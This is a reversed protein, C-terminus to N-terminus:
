LLEAVNLHSAVNSFTSLRLCPVQARLTQLKKLRWVKRVRNGKLRAVFKSGLYTDLFIRIDSSLPQGSPPRQPSRPSQRVRVPQDDGYAPSLRAQLPLTTVNEDDGIKRENMLRWRRAIATEFQPSTQASTAVPPPPSAARSRLFRGGVSKGPEQTSLGGVNSHSYSVSPSSPSDWPAQWQTSYSAPGLEDGGQPSSPLAHTVDSRQTAPRSLPSMGRRFSSSMTSHPAMPSGDAGMIEAGPFLTSDNGVIFESIGQVAEGFSSLPTETAQVPENGHDVESSGHRKRRTQRDDKRRRSSSRHNRRSKHRRSKSKQRDKNRRSKRNERSGETSVSSDRRTHRHREKRRKEETRHRPRRSRSSRSSASRSVSDSRHDRRQRHLKVPVEKDNQEVPFPRTTADALAAATPLPPAPPQDSSSLFSQSSAVPPPALVASLDAPPIWTSKGSTVDHYYLRRSTPDVAVVWYPTTNDTPDPNAPVTPPQLLSPHRPASATALTPLAESKSAEFLEGAVNSNVATPAVAIREV